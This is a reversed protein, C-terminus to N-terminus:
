LGKAKMLQTLRYEAEALKAGIESAEAEKGQKILEEMEKKMKITEKELQIMEDTIEIYPLGLAKKQLEVARRMELPTEPDGKMSILNIVLVYEAEEKSYGLGMLMEIGQEPTLIGNKVGKIIETKTLKREESLKERKAAPVIIKVWRDIASEDVGLKRLEQKLQEVTMTGDTIAKKWEDRRNYVLTFTVLKKADEPSYGLERYRYELEEPTMLGLEEFRRIDVRTIPLYSIPLFRNRWFVPIDATKLLDKVEEVTTQVDEKKLGLKELDKEKFKLQDPHLRQLMEFAQTPSPLTWHARWWLKFMEPTMGVGKLFKGMFEKSAPLEAPNDEDYGYKMAVDDRFSERVGFRIIDDVSPYAETVKLLREIDEDSYGWQALYEKVQEEATIVFEEVVGGREELKKALEEDFFVIPRKPSLGDKTKVLRWAKTDKIIGRRYCTIVTEPPLLTGRFVKAAARRIHSGIPSLFSGGALDVGMGLLMGIIMQWM